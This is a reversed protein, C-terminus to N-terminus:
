SSSGRTELERLALLWHARAKELAAARTAADVEPDQYQLGRVVARVASRYAVYLSLLQRGEADGAADFYCRTFAEALDHRYHFAFEMALFAVDAVPDICRLRESFELCDIVVLDHPPPQEPFVYVHDLRLDGHCERVMGRKARGEILPYLRVLVQDKLLAVRALVDPQVTVGAHPQARAFVDHMVKAVAEYRGFATVREDARADRHFAAIRRALTEVLGVDVGDRDLRHLLSAEDPLRRMKVAWELVEGEAEVRVGSATRAVPVVGVYVRPALRRNLRVEERCCHLRNDRTTFDVFGLDVPKKIKYVFDGALFVVSVHTQRVEVATPAAPYAAPDSLARILSHLDM